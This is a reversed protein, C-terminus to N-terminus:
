KIEVLLSYLPDQIKFKQCIKCMLLVVFFHFICLLFAALAPMGLYQPQWTYHWTGFYIVIVEGIVPVFLAPLIICFFWKSFHTKFNPVLALEFRYLAKYAFGWAVPVWFPIETGSPLGHYIWCDQATGIYEIITGLIATFLVGFISLWFIKKDAQKRYNRFISILLLVLLVAGIQYHYSKFKGILFAIIFLYFLLYIIKFFTSNTFKNTMLLQKHHLLYLIIKFILNRLGFFQLM